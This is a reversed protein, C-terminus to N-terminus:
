ERTRSNPRTARDLKAHVAALLNSWPLRRESTTRPEALPWVEDGYVLHVGALRLREIHDAWAPQRAHAANIRPFVIMPVIAISECLATLAQNDAIGLALKATSGASWPAAVYVDVEPHPSVQDPFRPTSRVPLGTLSAIKDYEGSRELWSAATPTLTVAVTHGDAILPRILGERLQEVGGAASAVVGITAM